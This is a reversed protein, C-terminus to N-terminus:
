SQSSSTKGMQGITKTLKDGPSYNDGKNTVIFTIQHPYSKVVKGKAGHHPCSKNIDEVMSGVDMDHAIKFFKGM